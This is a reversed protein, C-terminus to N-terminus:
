GQQMEWTAKCKPYGTCGWFTRSPTLLTWVEQDVKNLKDGKDLVGTPAMKDVRRVSPSLGQVLGRLECSERM